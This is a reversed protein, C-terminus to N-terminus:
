EVEFWRMVVSLLHDYNGSTAEAEFAEWADGRGAGRLARRAKGLISLANGDTGVLVLVPRDATPASDAGPVDGKRPM